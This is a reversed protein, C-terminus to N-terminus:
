LKEVQEETRSAQWATMHTIANAYISAFAVWLVSERWWLLTPIITLCWLVALWFHLRTLLAASM